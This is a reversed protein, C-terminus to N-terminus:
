YCPKFTHNYTVLSSFLQDTMKTLDKHHLFALEFNLQLNKIHNIKYLDLPILLRYIVILVLLGM